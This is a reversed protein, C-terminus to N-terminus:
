GLLAVVTVTAHVMSLTLARYGVRKLPELKSIRSLEVLHTAGSLALPMAYRWDSFAAVVAILCQLAAAVGAARRRRAAQDALKSNRQAALHDLRAHVTLVGVLAHLSSFLWLWWAWPAITGTSVLSVLLASSGLGFASAVQLPISRQRNRLTMWVAVGTLGAAMAGLAALPILPASFALWLGCMALLPLEFLLTRRAAETEPHPDRWLWRQRVLVILPERLVFVLLVALLALLLAVNWRGALICAAVFPVLLMGWAGHERPMLLGGSRSSM